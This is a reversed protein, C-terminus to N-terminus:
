NIQKPFFDKGGTYESITNIKDKMNNNQSLTWSPFILLALLLSALFAESIM